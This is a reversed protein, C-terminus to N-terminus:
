IVHRYSTGIDQLKHYTFAALGTGLFIIKLVKM